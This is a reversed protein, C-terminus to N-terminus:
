HFYNRGPLIYSVQVDIHLNTQMQEYIEKLMGLPKYGPNAFKELLFGSLLYM